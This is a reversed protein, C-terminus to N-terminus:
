KANECWRRAAVFAALWPTCEDNRRNRPYFGCQWPFIARELHPMMALHRGDASCIGAVAGTSGNPNGPYANYSYRVAVNYDKLAGPLKFRGEGHAVWIGLKMGKLPQLMIAPSEPVTLGVFASEFKHSRNHLMEVPAADPKASKILGLEMMLQCGNCIGLSIM